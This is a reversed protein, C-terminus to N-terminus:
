PLWSVIAGNQGVAWVHQADAAWVANLSNIVVGSEKPTWSSGDWVHLSGSNGVGWIHSPDIGSLGQGGGGSQATWSTGNLQYASGGALWVHQSDTGWVAKLDDNIGLFPGPSWKAGDWHLVTAAMGVAWVDTASAGWVAYLDWTTGSTQPTWKTGDWKTIEGGLGVAFVNKPDAGWVGTLQSKVGPDETTWTMGDWKRVTASLGPLGGVAWVDNADVAWVAALTDTTGSTM